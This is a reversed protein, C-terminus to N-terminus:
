TTSDDDGSAIAAGAVAIEHMARALSGNESVAPRSLPGALLRRRGIGFPLLGLWGLVAHPLLLAARAGLVIVAGLIGIGPFQGLVTTLDTYGADALFAVLVVLNDSQHQRYPQPMSQAAAEVAALYGPM